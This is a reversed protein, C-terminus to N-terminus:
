RYDAEIAVAQDATIRCTGPEGLNVARDVGEDPTWEGGPALYEALVDRPSIALRVLLVPPNGRDWLWYGFATM